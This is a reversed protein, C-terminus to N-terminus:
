TWDLADRIHAEIEDLDYPKLFLHQEPLARASEPSGSALVVQVDTRHIYIWRALMVGNMIGPMAIDTFVLDVAEGSQLVEVAEAANFAEIVRFGAKRLHDAVVGRVVVEDEAILITPADAKDAQPLIQASLSM